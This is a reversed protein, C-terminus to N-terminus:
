DRALEELQSYIEDWNEPHAHFTVGGCIRIQELTFKQLPTVKEASSRKNEFAIFSGNICLINDPIGKKARDSPHYSWTNKLKAIDRNVRRQFNKELLTKQKM